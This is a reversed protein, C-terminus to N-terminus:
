SHEQRTQLIQGPMLLNVMCIHSKWSFRVNQHFDWMKTFNECITPSEWWFTHNETCHSIKMLIAFHPLFRVFFHSKWLFTLNEDFNTIKAIIHPPPGISVLVMLLIIISLAIVLLLSISDVSRWYNISSLGQNGWISPSTVQYLFTLTVLLSAFLKLNYWVHTKSSGWTM